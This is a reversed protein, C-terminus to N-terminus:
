PVLYETKGLGAVLCEPFLAPVGIPQVITIHTLQKVDTLAGQLM